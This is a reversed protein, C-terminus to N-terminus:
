KGAIGPLNKLAWIENEPYFEDYFVIRKGDPHIHFFWITHLGLGLPVPEGGAVSVSFIDCEQNRVREEPKAMGVFFIRKGDPSWSTFAAWRAAAGTNVAVPEGGRSPMTMLTGDVWFALHNGDPSVSIHVPRRANLTRLEREDGSSLERRVIRVKGPEGGASPFYLTRGDPSLTAGADYWNGSNSWVRPAPLLEVGGTDIDVKALKGGQPGWQPQILLARGGPFWQPNALNMDLPVRPAVVREEGSAMTRVVLSAPDGSGPEMGDRISAYALLKGDPSWVPGTNTYRHTLKIPKSTARGSQPDL